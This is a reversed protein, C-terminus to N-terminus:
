LIGVTNIGSLTRAITASAEATKKADKATMKQEKLQKKQVELQDKQIAEEPSVINNQIRYAEVSGAEIANAFQPTLGEPIVSRDMAGQPMNADDNVFDVIDSFDTVANAAASEVAKEAAQATKKIQSEITKGEKQLIGEIAADRAARNKEFVDQFSGTISDFMGTVEQGTRKLFQSISIDGSILAFLNTFNGTVFDFYRKTALLMEAFLNQGLDFFLKLGFKVEQVFVLFAQTWEVISEVFGKNNVVKEELLGFEILVKQVEDAIEIMAAGVLFGAAAAAALTAILPILGVGLASIASGIAISAKLLGGAVLLVPGIAAAFAVTNILLQQEAGDLERFSDTLGDVNDALLKVAPALREGLEIFLLNVNDKVLKVQSKFSELQKNAVEETIGGANELERQYTRIADATGLLPLIAGQQKAKLGLTELQAIRSQASMGALLDTLDEVIDAFNKMKGDADFIEVGAKKFADANGVAAKTLLRVGRSFTNGALEGKVGQDAYAALVAVGEEVEIGFAKMAAGAERTLSFAFQSVSANALTNAKVLVDSVRKMNMMNEAVDESKLGLASQADTVLDTATALNFMGAQAFTAVQPLAAISQEATFGASALFFYADAAQKASFTTTKAVEKAAETMENRLADSVNGMIAVSQNMAQDFDAFSKVAAGGLAIAPLTVATTLKRGVNTLGNAIKNMKASLTDVKQITNELATDVQTTRAIVDFYISGIKQSM